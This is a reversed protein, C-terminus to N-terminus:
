PQPSSSSSSPSPSPPAPTSRTAESGIGRGLQLLGIAGPLGLMALYAGLLWPNVQQTVQQYIIGGFGILLFGADRVITKLVQWNM